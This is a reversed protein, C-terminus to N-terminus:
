QQGAPKDSPQRPIHQLIKDRVQPDNQAVVMIQTYEDVSLGQDTVAKVLESNAEDVLKQKDNDQAAALRKEYDQKIGAVRQLAAAAAGIKEDPINAPKSQQPSGSPPQASPAPTQPPSQQTQASAAPAFGCITLLGAAWLARAGWSPTRLHFAPM